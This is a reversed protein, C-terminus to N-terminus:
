LTFVLGSNLPILVFNIRCKWDKKRLYIGARFEFPNLCTCIIWANKRKLYIGARFEFPNLSLTMIYVGNTLFYIGARFEFPNLGDLEFLAVPIQSFYIGARFEFPNLRPVPEASREYWYTFVLGSNLPILVLTKVRIYLTFWTFVLGSNLPILVKGYAKQM